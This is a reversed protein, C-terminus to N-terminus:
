NDITNFRYSVGWYFSNRRKDEKYKFTRHNFNLKWDNNDSLKYMVGILLEKVNHGALISGYYSAEDNLDGSFGTGYISISRSDISINGVIFKCSPSANFQALTQRTTYGHKWDTYEYSVGLTNTLQYEFSLNHNDKSDHFMLDVNLDGKELDQIPAAFAATSVSLILLVFIIVTKKLFM